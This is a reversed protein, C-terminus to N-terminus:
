EGSAIWKSVESGDGEGLLQETRNLESQAANCFYTRLLHIKERSPNSEGRSLQEATAKLDSIKELFVRPEHVTPLADVAQGFFTAYSKTHISLEPKDLWRCGAEADRLISAATELIKRDENQLTQGKEARALALVINDVIFGNRLSETLDSFRHESHM